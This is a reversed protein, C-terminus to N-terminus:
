GVTTGAIFKKQLSGRKSDLTNCVIQVATQTSSVQLQRAFAQQSSSRNQGSLRGNSMDWSSQVGSQSDLAYSRVANPLQVPCCSPESANGGRVLAKESSNISECLELM